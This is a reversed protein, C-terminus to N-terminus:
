PWQGTPLTFRWGLRLDQASRVLNKKLIDRYKAGNLKGGVKVLLGTGEASFCGWLMINGSGHNVSSITNPLHHTTGPKRWVHHKANLDFLRIKTKDSRLIKNRLRLTRFTSKRAFELCAIRHRRRLLPKGYRGSRHLTATITWRRSTEGMEVCSRQLESM